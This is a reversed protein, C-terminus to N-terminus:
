SMMEDAQASAQQQALETIASRFKDRVFEWVLMICYEHATHESEATWGNAGAFLEFGDANVVSKKIYIPANFIVRDERDPDQILTGASLMEEVKSM